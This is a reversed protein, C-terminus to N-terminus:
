GRLLSGDSTFTSEIISSQRFYTKFTSYGGCIMSRSSYMGSQVCRRKVPVVDRDLTGDAVEGLDVGLLQRV